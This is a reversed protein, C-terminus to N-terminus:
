IGLLANINDCSEAFHRGTLPSNKVYNVLGVVAQLVTQLEESMNRSSPAKRHPM